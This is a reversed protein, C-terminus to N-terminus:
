NANRKRRSFGLGALGIGLLALTAPEPVSSAEFTFRDLVIIRNNAEIDTFRIRAIGSSHEWGAFAPPGDEAVVTVVSGIPLGNTDFFTTSVDSAGLWAGVRGQPTSLVVDIFALEDNENQTM